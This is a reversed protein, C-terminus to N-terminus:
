FTLVRLGEARAVRKFKEDGAALVVSVGNRIMCAIIIADSKGINRLHDRKYKDYIKNGKNHDHKNTTKIQLTLKSQFDEIIKDVLQAAALPNKAIKKSAVVGKAEKVVIEPIRFPYTGKYDKKLKNTSSISKACKVLVTTDFSAHTSV